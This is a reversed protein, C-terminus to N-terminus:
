CFPPFGLKDTGICRTGGQLYDPSSCRAHPQTTPHIHVATWVPTHTHSFGLTEWVPPVRSRGYLGRKWPSRRHSARLKLIIIIYSSAIGPRTSSVESVRLLHHPSSSPIGVSGLAEHDGLDFSPIKLLPQWAAKQLCSVTTYVIQSGMLDLSPNKGGEKPM